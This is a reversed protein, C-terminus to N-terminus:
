STAYSPFRFASM